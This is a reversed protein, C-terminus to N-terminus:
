IHRTTNRKGTRLRIPLNYDLRKTICASGVDRQSHATAGEPRAQRHNVATRHLFPLSHFLPIPPPEKPTRSDRRTRKSTRRCFTAEDHIPRLSSCYQPYVGLGGEHDEGSGPVIGLSKNPTCLHVTTHLVVCWVKTQRSPALALNGGTLEDRGHYQTDRLRPM